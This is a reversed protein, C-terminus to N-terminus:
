FMMWAYMMWRMMKKILLTQQSDTQADAPLSDGIQAQASGTVIEDALLGTLRDTQRDTQRHTMQMCVVGKCDFSSTNCVRDLGEEEEGALGAPQRAVELRDTHRDSAIGPVCCVHVNCKETLWAQLRGQAEELVCVCLAAVWIDAARSSGTRVFPHTPSPAHPQPPPPTPPNPCCSPSGDGKSLSLMLM